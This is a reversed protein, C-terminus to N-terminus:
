IVSYRKLASIRKELSQLESFFFISILIRIYVYRFVILTQEKEKGLVNIGMYKYVSVVKGHVMKVMGFTDVMKM